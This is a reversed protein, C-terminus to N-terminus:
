IEASFDLYATTDNVALLYTANGAVLGSDVAGTIIMSDGTFTTADVALSGSLYVAAGSASHFALTGNQALTPVCRMRVPFNILAGAATASNCKGFGFVTYAKGIAPLRVFYECCDRLEDAYTKPEFPLAVDGACVQVQAIDINGSGVFSEAASAGVLSQYSSGWQYWFMLGLYGDTTTGFTKGSLTAATFTFSVDQWSSTLTVTTGTLNDNSSPSGGTGYAQYMSVGLLKGSISSRAKFSVTITKGAGCLYKVGTEIRQEFVHYSSNGFSSGAGDVTLRHFYQSKNMEGPTISQRSQQITPSTGGNKNGRLMWRDALFETATDTYSTDSTGRQWVDFNGNIIAQREMSHKSPYNADTLGCRYWSTGDHRLFDGEQAYPSINVDSLSNIEIAGWGVAGTTRSLFVPAGIAGIGAKPCLGHADGTVDLDTNDDPVALDDLKHTHQDLNNVIADYDYATFKRAIPTDVPWEKATGQFGRQTVTITGPGSAGSIGSYLITEADDGDGLVAENAGSPFCSLEVVGITTDDIDISASLTTSPSNIKAPYLTLMAM